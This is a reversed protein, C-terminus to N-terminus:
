TNEGLTLLLRVIANARAEIVANDAHDLSTLPKRDCAFTAPPRINSLSSVASGRPSSSEILHAHGTRTVQVM